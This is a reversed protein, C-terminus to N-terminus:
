QKNIRKGRRPEDYTSAFKRLDKKDILWMNHVKKAPIRGERCMRKVTEWHVGLVEAAEVVNVYNDLVPMNDEVRFDITVAITASLLYSIM